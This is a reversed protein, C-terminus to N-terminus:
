IKALTLHSKLIEKKDKEYGKRGLLGYMYKKSQEVGPQDFVNVKLLEGLYVTAMEFFYFLQGLYFENLEPLIITGNPRKNKMLSVATAKHEINLIESFKHNGLYAVESNSYRPVKLSELKKVQIFTIIKDYPGQIYLQMQSHQDTPGIAAIPTFGRKTKGLSEGLLQKAWFGFERLYYTYPMIVSINQRRKTYALYQVTAWLYPLNTQYNNSQCIKDIAQAGTLLQRINFGACAAMLLGNVSLVSYRGGIESHPLILYKEKKAIELLGGQKDNTTIIFHEKQKKAGVKKIVQERLYLFNTLPEITDGSKSVIYFITKKIDLLKLIDATPQPDTTDGLFHVAMAKPRALCCGYNGALAQYIARAGLDSGGIGVVVLNTFQCKLRSALNLVLKVAGQDYPLQRFSLDPNNSLAVLKKNIGALKKGLQALEAKKFGFKGVKASSMFSYDYKIIKQAM